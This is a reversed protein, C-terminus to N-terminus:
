NETPNPAPRPEQEPLRERKKPWCNHWNEYHHKVVLDEPPIRGERVEKCLDLQEYNKPPPWLSQANASSAILLASVACMKLM